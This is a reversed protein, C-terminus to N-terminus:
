RAGGDLGARRLLHDAIVDSAEPIGSYNPFDNVEIVVPGRPGLVCDVGYLELGFPRGCALALDRWAPALAVPEPLADRWRLDHLPSAKRVAWVADGAVYLKLDRGDGSVLPQALAVDEKWRLAELAARGPVLTVGRANDGLVPKVVLPFPGGSLARAMAGRAVVLTPPTPLGAAELATAMRAKDLVARVASARNVAVAGSRELRELVDLVGPSRGRAVALLVDSPLADAADPDLVLPAIARRRLAAVLSTPQRQALYRSEALVVLRGQSAATPQRRADRGTGRCMAADIMTAM